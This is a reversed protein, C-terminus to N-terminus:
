RFPWVCKNFWYVMSPAPAYTVVPAPAMPLYISKHKSRMYPRNTYKTKNHANEDKKNRSISIERRGRNQHSNKQHVLDIMKCYSIQKRKEKRKRGYYVGHVLLVGDSLGFQLAAVHRWGHAFGVAEVDIGRICVFVAVVGVLLDPGLGNRAERLVRKVTIEGRQRGIKDGVRTRHYIGKHHILLTHNRTLAQLSGFVFYLVLYIEKCNISSTQIKKSTVDYYAYDCKDSKFESTLHNNVAARYLKNLKCLPKLM